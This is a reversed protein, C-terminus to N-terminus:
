GERGSLIKELKSNESTILDQINQSSTRIANWSRIYSDRQEKCKELAKERREVEDLLFQIAEVNKIASREPQILKPFEKQLKNLRARIEAIRENIPGNM